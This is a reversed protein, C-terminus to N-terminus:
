PMVRQKERTKARQACLFWFPNESAKLPSLQSPTTELVRLLKEALPVVGEGGRASGDIPAGMIREM